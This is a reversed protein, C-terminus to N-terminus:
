KARGGCVWHQQYYKEDLHSVIVGQGTSAHIFKGEKLYIGVHAAKKGSRRSSFFVLDGERLEKKTLIRAVENLQGSTSRSLSIHYTERYLRRTLGSCDIGRRSDGGARYPTGIWEAAHLYLKQNDKLDIDTNLKISAKALARYDRNPTSATKCASLSGLLCLCLLLHSVYKKM